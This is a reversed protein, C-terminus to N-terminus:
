TYLFLCVKAQEAFLDTNLNGTVCHLLCTREPPIQLILHYGQIYKTPIVSLNCGAIVTTTFSVSACPLQSIHKM